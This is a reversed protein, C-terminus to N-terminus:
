SEYTQEDIKKFEERLSKVIKESLFRFVFIKIGLM